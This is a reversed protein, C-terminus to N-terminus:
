GMGDLGTGITSNSDLKGNGSLSVRGREETTM